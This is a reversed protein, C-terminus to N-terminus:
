VALSLNILVKKLHSPSLFSHLIVIIKLFFLICFKDISETKAQLPSKSFNFFDTKNKM